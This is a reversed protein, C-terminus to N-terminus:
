SKRAGTTAVFHLASENICYRRHTPAPGDDFVHGLHADCRTCSVELGSHLTLNGEARIVINEAAIPEWFSPWGTGSDYKAESRFVANACGICRFLGRERLHDYTGTFPRDTHQKRTVYYQQPSLRKMWEADSLVLKAVRAAGLSNGADDFQVISVEGSTSNQAIRNERTKSCSAPLLAAAALVLAQRRTVPETFPVRM